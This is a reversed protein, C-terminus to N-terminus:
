ELEGVVSVREGEIDVYGQKEQDFRIPYERLLLNGKQDLFRVYFAVEDGNERFVVALRREGHERIEIPKQNIAHMFCTMFKIGM